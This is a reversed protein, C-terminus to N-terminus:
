HSHSMLRKIRRRTEVWTEFVPTNLNGIQFKNSDSLLRTETYQSVWSQGKAHWLSNLFSQTNFFLIFHYGNCWQSCCNITQIFTVIYRMLWQNHRLWGSYFVLWFCLYYQLHWLFLLHGKMSMQLFLFYTLHFNHCLYLQILLWCITTSDSVAISSVM